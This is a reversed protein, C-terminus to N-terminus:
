HTLFVNSGDCFAVIALPDSSVMYLYRAFEALTKTDFCLCDGIVM